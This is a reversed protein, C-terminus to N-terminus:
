AVRVKPLSALPPFSFRGSVVILRFILPFAPIEPSFEMNSVTFLFKFRTVRDRSLFATRAIRPSVVWTNFLLDCVAIGESSESYSATFTV